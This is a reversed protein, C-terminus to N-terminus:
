QIGIGKHLAYETEAASVFEKFKEPDDGIAELEDVLADM